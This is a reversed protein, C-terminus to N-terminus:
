DDLCLLISTASGTTMRTCWRVCSIYTNGLYVFLANVVVSLQLGLVRSARVDEPKLEQYKSVRGLDYILQHSAGLLVPHKSLLATMVECKSEDTANKM